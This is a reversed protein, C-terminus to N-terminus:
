PRRGLYEFKMNGKIFDVKKIRNPNDFPSKIGPAFKDTINKDDSSHRIIITNMRIFGRHSLNRLQILKSSSM